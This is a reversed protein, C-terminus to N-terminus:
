IVGSEIISFDNKDSDLESMMGLPITLIPDTHGIDVNYLIPFDYNKMNKIVINQLDLSEKETYGFPRGIIMGKIGDFVGSLKLDTLYSDVRSISEGKTFDCSGEPIEWFFNKGQFNPWYDTGRLRMMSTICGGLIPGASKGKKLWQWGINKKTNRPRELDKKEFWNLVEDTYFDSPQLKGIPKNSMVAKEFYEKTYSLIAPNEAFQTLVAPGYFTVLDCKSYLVYHLVTMDSYGMFIKPSKKIAKLDLFKVIQNSHFGGIFSIIAKISPDTFFDNLDEARDEASGATYDTVKLANRGLKVKFGMKELMKVGREVRHPLRGAMGSSPSVIGITNGVSLHEAKVLKKINYKAM